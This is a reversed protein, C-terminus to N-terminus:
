ARSKPMFRTPTTYRSSVDFALRSAIFRAKCEIDSVGRTVSPMSRLMVDNLSTVVFSSSAFSSKTSNVAFAAGTAAIM